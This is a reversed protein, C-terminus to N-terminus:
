KKKPEPYKAIGTYNPIPGCVASAKIQDASMVGAAAGVNTNM